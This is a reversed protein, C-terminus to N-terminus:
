GNSTNSGNQKNEPTLLNHDLQIQRVRPDVKKPTEEQTQLQNEEIPTQSMEAEMLSRLGKYEVSGETQKYFPFTVISMDFVDSARKLKGLFSGDGERKLEYSDRNQVDVHFGFSAGTVYGDAMLERQYAPFNKPLIAVADIQNGNRTWKLTGNKTRGMVLNPDHNFLARVDSMDAEDFATPEIIENFGVNDSRVGMVIPTFHVEDPSGDQGQVFRYNCEQIKRRQIEM